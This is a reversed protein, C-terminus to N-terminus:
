TSAACCLRYIASVFSTCEVGYPVCVSAHGNPVPVVLQQFNGYGVVLFKLGGCDINGREAALTLLTPNVLIEEYHDSESASADSLGDRQKMSLNGDLRVAVYRIDSSLELIADVTDTIQIDSTM